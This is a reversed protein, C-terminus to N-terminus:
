CLYCSLQLCKMYYSKLETVGDSEEWAAHYLSHHSVDDTPYVIGAAVYIIIYHVDAGAM